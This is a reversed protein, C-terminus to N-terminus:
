ADNVMDAPIRGSGDCDPCVFTLVDDPDYYLTADETPEDRRLTRVVAIQGSLLDRVVSEVRRQRHHPHHRRFKLGVVFDKAAIDAEGSGGCRACDYWPGRESV